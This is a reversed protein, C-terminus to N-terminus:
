LSTARDRETELAWQEHRDRGGRYSQTSSANALPVARPRGPCSCAGESSAENLGGPYEVRNSGTAWVLCQM